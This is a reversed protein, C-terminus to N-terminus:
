GRLCNVLPSADEPDPLSNPLSIRPPDVGDEGGPLIGGGKKTFQAPEPPVLAPEPAVLAPEPPVLVTCYETGKGGM